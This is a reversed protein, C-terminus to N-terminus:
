KITDGINYRGLDEESVETCILDSGLSDRYPAAPKLFINGWNQTNPSKYMVVYGKYQAIDTTKHCGIYMVALLMSLVAKRM